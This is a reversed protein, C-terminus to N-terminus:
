VPKVSRIIKISHITCLVDGVKGNRRKVIEFTNFTINEFNTWNNNSFHNYCMSCNEWVLFWHNDIAHPLTTYGREMRFCLQQRLPLRNNAMTKKIWSSYAHQLILYYIFSTLYIQDHYCKFEKSNKGLKLSPIQIRRESDFATSFLMPLCRADRILCFIRIYYCLIAINSLANRTLRLIM